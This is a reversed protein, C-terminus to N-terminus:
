KPCPSRGPADFPAAIGEYQLWVVGRLVSYACCSHSLLSPFTVPTTNTHMSAFLYVVFWDILSWARPRSRSCLSAALASVCCAPAASTLHPRALCCRFSSPHSAM